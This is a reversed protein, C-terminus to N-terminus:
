GKEDIWNGAGTESDGPADGSSNDYVDDKRRQRPPLFDSFVPTNSFMRSEGCRKCIGRSGGPGDPTEIAWFHICTEGIVEM